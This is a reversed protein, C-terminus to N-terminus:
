ILLVNYIIYRYSEDIIFSDLFEYIKQIHM